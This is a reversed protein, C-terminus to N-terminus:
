DSTQLNHALIIHEIDKTRVLPTKQEEIYTTFSTIQFYM